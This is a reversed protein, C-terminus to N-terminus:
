KLQNDDNDTQPTDANKGDALQQQKFMQWLQETATPPVDMPRSLKDDPFQVLNISPDKHIFPTWPGQISPCDTHWLKRMRVAETNGSQTLLLQVWKSIEIDSRNAIDLWHRDGNVKNKICSFHFFFSYMHDISILQIFFHLSHNHYKCYEAVLVPGRHRRPKVYVVVGPNDRAFELLNRELFDSHYRFIPFRTTYETAM